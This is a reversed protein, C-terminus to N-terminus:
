TRTHSVLRSLWRMLSCYQGTRDAEAFSSVKAKFTGLVNHSVGPYVSLKRVQNRLTRATPLVFLKSLLRYPQPSAYYLSLATAKKKERNKQLQWSRM